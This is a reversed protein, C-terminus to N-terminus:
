RDGDRIINVLVNSTRLDKETRTLDQRIKTAQLGIQQNWHEWVTQHLGNDHLYTDTNQWSKDRLSVVKFDSYEGLRTAIPQLVDRSMHESFDLCLITKDTPWSFCGQTSHRNRIFDRFGYKFRILYPRIMLSISSSTADTYLTPPVYIRALDVVFADWFPIGSLTLAESLTRGDPFRSKGWIKVLRTTYQLTKIIDLM